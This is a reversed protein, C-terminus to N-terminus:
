EDGVMFVTVEFGYGTITGSIPASRYLPSSSGKRAVGSVPQPNTYNFATDEVIGNINTDGDLIVATSKISGTAPTDPSGSVTYTYSDVGTVAITKIGNYPMQNAGKIEVKNGTILGHATHSVTATTDVRTITVTEEFPLDGGSAAELYIRAGSIALGTAASKAVVRVTVSNNIVVTAGATVYTPTDGGGTVNITVTGSTATVNIDKTFGTFIVGSLTYTGAADIEIAYDSGTQTSFTCNTLTTNTDIDIAATQSARPNSITCGSLSCGKAAIQGCNIFVMNQFTVVNKLTVSAGIVTTGIFDWSAGSSASANIRWYYSSDSTFVCNTFKITDGNKGYFEIGVQDPDVHFDFMKTASNAHTPFQFTCLNIFTHVPDGGGIQIPSWVTVAAGLKYLFPFMCCGDIIADIMEGFDLPDTSKGGAIVITGTRMLMSYCLGMTGYPQCSMYMITDIASMTPVGVTKYATDITQDLQIAFICRRDAITTPADKAGIVWMKWNNSADLFVLAIGIRNYYALDVWDRPTTFMFTGLLYGSTLDIGGSYLAETGGLGFTTSSPTMQSVSHYPNLGVDATSTILDYAFGVGDILGQSLTGATTKVVTVRQRIYYYATGESNVTTTAWDAPPKFIINYRTGTGGFTETFGSLTAWTTGNWYEWVVTGGVTATSVIVAVRSFISLSGLYLISGVTVVLPVDATGADNMDVTEDTYTSANYYWVKDFDKGMMTLSLSAQYAWGFMTAGEQPDVITCPTTGRDVYGQVETNNGDDEIVITHIQVPAAIRGWFNPNGISGAIPYFAWSVGVGNAGCDGAYLIQAVGPYPEAAIGVDNAVGHLVLCNNSPTTISQDQTFPITSDDTSLYGVPANTAHAGKVSVIVFNSTESTYTFTPPTENASTARRYWLGGWATTTIDGSNLLTYLGTTETMGTTSDKNAFVVLIDGIAHVPMDPTVSTAVAIVETVAFDRVAPM